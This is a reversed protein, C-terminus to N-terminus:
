CNIQKPGHPVYLANGLERALQEGRDRLQQTQEPINVSAAESAINTTPPATTVPSTANDSTGAATSRPAPPLLAETGTIRAVRGDVISASEDGSPAIEFNDAGMAPVASSAALVGDGDPPRKKNGEVIPGSIGAAVLVSGDRNIKNSNPIVEPGGALSNAVSMVAGGGMVGGGNPLFKGGRELAESAAALYAAQSATPREKENEFYQYFYKLCPSLHKEHM